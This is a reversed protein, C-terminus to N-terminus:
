ARPQYRGVLYATKGPGDGVFIGRDEDAYLGVKAPLVLPRTFRAEFAAMAHVDGDFRARALGEMARAGTSFGHLITSRFGFARAYPRLWHVPNFDGTLQAFHLGEDAALSWPELLVAGEPVTPPERSGGRGRPIIVELYAVQAEPASPTGSVLRQRLVVRRDTEDISELRAALEIPEAAPMPECLELRFGGNLARALPYPLRRLTKGAVAFGWQPFLHPPVTSRYRAPDGGVHGAYDRILSAPRPLVTRRIEPGPIVLASRRGLGPLKQALASLATEALGAIVPVQHRIHRAYSTV